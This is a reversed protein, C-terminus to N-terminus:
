WPLDSDHFGEVRLCFSHTSFLCPVFKYYQIYFADHVRLPTVHKKSLPCTISDTTQFNGIGGSEKM